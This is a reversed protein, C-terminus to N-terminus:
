NVFANIKGSGVFRYNVCNWHKKVVFTSLWLMQAESKTEVAQASRVFNVSINLYLTNEGHGLCAHSIMVVGERERQVIHGGRKESWLYLM